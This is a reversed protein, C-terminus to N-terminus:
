SRSSATWTSSAVSSSIWSGEAQFRLEIKMVDHGHTILEKVARADWSSSGYLAFCIAELLSSKGAGRDGVIAMLETDRFDIEQRTAYSRLGEVTLQLPRM